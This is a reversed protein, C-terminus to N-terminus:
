DFTLTFEDDGTSEAAGFSIDFTRLGERDGPSLERYSVAPMAVNFQNYQTSGIDGSALAMAAGSRWNAEFAETAVTVAEPDFSGSVDRKTLYVEGYGDSATLDSQSSMEWNLGFSLNSIKAAYSDITFSAGKAVPPSLSDFTPTALATDTPTSCHGKFTFNAKATQGAEIVFEVNGRCGTVKYLLGDQYMYITCSDHTSWDSSPKYTVNESSPTTDITEALGCSRLLPAIEPLVSSSYASGAGKIECSFTVQMMTDGWVQKLQGTSGGRIAPREIMRAGEFSWALNEVLISDNAGTPTPDSNYSSEEKVLILDRNVLM